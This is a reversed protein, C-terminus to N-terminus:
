LNLVQLVSCVELTLFASATDKELKIDLTVLILIVKWVLKYLLLDKQIQDKSSLKVMSSTISKEVSYTM